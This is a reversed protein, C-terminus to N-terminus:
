LADWMYEERNNLTVQSVTSNTTWTTGKALFSPHYAKVSGDAM